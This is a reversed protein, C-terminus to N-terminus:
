LKNTRKLPKPTWRSPPTASDVTIDIGINDWSLELDVHPAPREKNPSTEKVQTTIYTGDVSYLTYIGM